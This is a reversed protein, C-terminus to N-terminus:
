FDVPMARIMRRGNGGNELDNVKSQWYDIQARVDALSARTLTRSGIKYSQSTALADEADLWMQLKKYALDLTIPSSM